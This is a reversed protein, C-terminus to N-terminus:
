LRRGLLHLPVFGDCLRGPFGIADLAEIACQPLADRRPDESRQREGLFQRMVDTRDLIEDAV